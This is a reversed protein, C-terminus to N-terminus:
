CTILSQQFVLSKRKLKINRHAAGQIKHTKSMVIVIEGRYSHNLHLAGSYKYLNMLTGALTSRVSVTVALM